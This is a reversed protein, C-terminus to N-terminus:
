ANRLTRFLTFDFLGILTQRHLEVRVTVLAIFLGFGFKFLNFFRIFDQGIRLFTRGVILVTVRRKLLAAHAAAATKAAAASVKAIDKAVHEAIDKATTATALACRAASVQAVVHLQRQFLSNAADGFLDTDRRQFLAVDAVAAARFRTGLRLGTRGTMAGALHLHALAEKRYLLGTRVALPATRQDFIRAVLAVTM